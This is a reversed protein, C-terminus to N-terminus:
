LEGAGIACYAFACALVILIDLGLRGLSLGSYRARWTQGPARDFAAIWLSLAINRMAIGILFLM